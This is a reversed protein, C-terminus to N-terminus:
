FSSGPESLFALEEDTSSRGLVANRHPFRGFREIIEAHRRAYGVYGREGTERELAEFLRVSERQSDLSEAHEFPLYAFARHHASPLGLDAGNAIMRRAVDLARADAAFAEASGRWANRSFQDLVVVLALAGLPSSQWADCEGRRAAALTAGFRERLSRDFADDRAFWRKATQGFGPSDPAGFWFDLVARAVPDLAAYDAASKAQATEPSEASQTASRKDNPKTM